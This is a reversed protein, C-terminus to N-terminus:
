KSNLVGELTLGVGAKSLSKEFFVNQIIVM